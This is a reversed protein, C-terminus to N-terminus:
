SIQVSGDYNFGYFIWVFRYKLNWPFCKTASTDCLAQMFLSKALIFSTNTHRLILTQQDTEMIQDSCNLVITCVSWLFHKCSRRGEKQFQLWCTRQTTSCCINLFRFYEPSSKWSFTTISQFPKATLVLNRYIYAVFM